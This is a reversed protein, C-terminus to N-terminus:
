NNLSTFCQFLINNDIPPYSMKFKNMAHQTNLDNTNAFKNLSKGWTQEYDLHLPLLNFLANNGDIHKLADVWTKSPVVNVKYGYINLDKIIELWSIQKKSSFNYVNNEVSDSTSIKTIIESIFDVPLINLSIDWDPAMNMQLCGKILLLLHNGIVPFYGTITNGFIWGPRYINISFNRNSAETLLKESAWKTQSYGDNPPITFDPSIFEELIHGDTKTFECVASLTSIYHIRKNKFLSALKLIEVTARVNTSRLM